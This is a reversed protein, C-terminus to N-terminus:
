RRALRAATRSLSVTLWLVAVYTPIGAALQQEMAVVVSVEQPRGTPVHGHGWLETIQAAMWTGRGILGDHMIPAPMAILALLAGAVVAFRLTGTRRGRRQALWAATPLIVALVPTLALFGVTSDIFWHLWPSIAPGGENLYISHFWFMVAGGGYAVIIGTLLLIVYAVRDAYFDRITVSLPRSPVDHEIPRAPRSELGFISRAVGGSM